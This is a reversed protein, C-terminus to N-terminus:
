ADIIDDKFYTELADIEDHEELWSKAEDNTVPRLDSSGGWCNNGCSESYGSMAGGNGAIFWNGNKTKYLSEEYWNFDSTPLNNSYSAIEEATETNYKKGDIIKKM